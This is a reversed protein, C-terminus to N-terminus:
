SGKRIHMLVSKTHGDASQERMRALLVRVREEQGDEYLCTFTVSSAPANGAMFENVVRRLEEGNLFPAAESFLDRGYFEPPPLNAPAEGELRSYTVTGAADIEFLGYIRRGTPRATSM